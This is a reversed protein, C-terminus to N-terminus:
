IETHYYVDRQHKVWTVSYASLSRDCSKTCIISSISLEKGLCLCIKSYEAVKGSLTCFNM